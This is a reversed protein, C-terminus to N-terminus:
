AATPRRWASRRWGAYGLGAFGILMMGWTPLEPVTMNYFVERDRPPTGFFFKTDWWRGFIKVDDKFTIPFKYRHSFWKSFSAVVTGNVSVTGTGAEESGPSGFLYDGDGLITGPIDVFISANRRGFRRRWGAGEQRIVPLLGTM